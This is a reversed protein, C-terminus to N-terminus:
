VHQHCFQGTSVLLGLSYSVKKIISVSEEFKEKTWNFVKRKKLDKKFMLPYNNNNNNFQIILNTSSIMFFHFDLLSPLIRMFVYIGLIFKMSFLASAHM